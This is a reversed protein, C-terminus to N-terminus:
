QWFMMGTRLLCSRVDGRSLAATNGGSAISAKGITERTWEIAVPSYDCGVIRQPRFRGRLMLLNIGTGCGVDLISKPAERVYRDLLARTIRRMGVFWWYDSELLHMLYYDEKRM